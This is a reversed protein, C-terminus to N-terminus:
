GDNNFHERMIYNVNNLCIASIQLKAHVDLEICKSLVEKGRLLIIRM